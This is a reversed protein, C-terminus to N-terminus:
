VHVTVISFAAVCRKQSSTDIESPQVHMEIAILCDSRTSITASSQRKMMNVPKKKQSKSFPAVNALPM